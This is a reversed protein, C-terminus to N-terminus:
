RRGREAHSAYQEGAAGYPRNMNAVERTRLSGRRGAFEDQSRGEL